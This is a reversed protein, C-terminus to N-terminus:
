SRRQETELHSIGIAELATVLERLRRDNEIWDQYDAAQAGNLYRGVTKRALKRTWQWYPGHLRPPDAHCACGAKGCRMQRQTITGPLVKGSRAIRALETAIARAREREAQELRM